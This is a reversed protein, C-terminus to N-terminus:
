AEDFGEGLIDEDLGQERLSELVSRRLAALEDHDLRRAGGRTAAGYASLIGLVEEAVGAGGGELAHGQTTVQPRGTIVARRILEGLDAPSAGPLESPPDPDPRRPPPEDRLGANLQERAGPPLASERERRRRFFNRIGM